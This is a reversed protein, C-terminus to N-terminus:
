KGDAAPAPQHRGAGPLHACRFSLRGTDIGIRNPLLEAEPSITHGHVVVAGHDETSQIFDDRIWLQDEFHQDDLPVGPRIGAHM